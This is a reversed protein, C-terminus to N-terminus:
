ISNWSSRSIIRQAVGFSIGFHKRLRKYGWGEESHLRRMEIVQAATLKSNPHNEGRRNKWRDKWLRKFTDSQPKLRGKRLADIINQKGTGIWLHDPNVCLRNDGGPCNHCVCMREPIEGNRESWSFRHAYVVKGLHVLMGYGAKSKARKWIWCGNESVEFSKYFFKRGSTKIRM